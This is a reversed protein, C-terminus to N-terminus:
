CLEKEVLEPKKLKRLRWACEESGEEGKQQGCDVTLISGKKRELILRNRGKNGVFVSLCM